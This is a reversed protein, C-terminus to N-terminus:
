ARTLARWAPVTHFPHHTSQLTPGESDEQGNLHQPASGYGQSVGAVDDRRGGCEFRVVVCTTGHQVVRQAARQAVVSTSLDDDLARHDSRRRAGCPRQRRGGSPDDGNGVGGM